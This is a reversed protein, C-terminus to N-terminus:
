EGGRDEYLGWITVVLGMVAVAMNSVGQNVDRFKIDGKLEPNM